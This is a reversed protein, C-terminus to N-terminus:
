RVPARRERARERVCWLGLEEFAAVVRTMSPPQVREIAAGAPHALASRAQDLIGLVSLQSSPSARAAHAREAATARPAHRRHPAHERARIRGASGGDHGGAATKM